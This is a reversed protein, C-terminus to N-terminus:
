KILLHLIFYTSKRFNTFLTGMEKKRKKTRTKLNNLKGGMDNIFIRKFHTNNMKYDVNISLRGFTKKRSHLIDEFEPKYDSTIKPLKNIFYITGDNVQLSDKELIAKQFSDDEYLKLLIEHIKDTYLENLNKIDEFDVIQSIEIIKQIL